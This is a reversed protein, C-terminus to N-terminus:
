MMSYGSFPIYRDSALYAAIHPREEMRKKFAKLLPVNQAAWAEPFQAETARLVTLMSIDVYTVQVPPPPLVVPSPVTYHILHDM